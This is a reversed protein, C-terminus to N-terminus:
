LSEEIRQKVQEFVRRPFFVPDGGSITIGAHEMMKLEQRDEARFFVGRLYKVEFVHFCYVTSAM